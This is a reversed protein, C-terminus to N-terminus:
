VERLRASSMRPDVLYQGYEITKKKIEELLDKQQPDWSGDWSCRRLRYQLEPTKSDHDDLLDLRKELVTIEAQLHSLLRAHVRGFRRYM